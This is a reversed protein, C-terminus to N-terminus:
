KNGGMKREYVVLYLIYIFGWILLIAGIRPAQKTILYDFSEAGIYLDNIGDANYFLNTILEILPLIIIFFPLNKLIKLVSISSSSSKRWKQILSFVKMLLILLIFMLSFYGLWIGIEWIM